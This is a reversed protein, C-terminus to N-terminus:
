AKEGGGQRGGRARSAPAIRPAAKRLLLVSQLVDGSLSVPPPSVQARCVSLVEELGYKVRPEPLLKPWRRCGGASVHPYM